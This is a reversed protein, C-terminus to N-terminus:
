RNVRDVGPSWVRRADSRAVDDFIAGLRSIAQTRLAAKSGGEPVFWHRFVATRLKAKDDDGWRARVYEWFTTHALTVWLRSDAAQTRNLDPLYEYAYSLALAVSYVTFSVAGGPYRSPLASLPCLHWVGFALSPYTTNLSLRNPFATVYLGRWLLEETVGIVIGLAVSAIVVLYPTSAIRPVFLVDTSVRAAVLAVPSDNSRTKRAADGISHAPHCSRPNRSTRRARARV